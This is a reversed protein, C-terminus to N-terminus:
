QQVNWHNGMYCISYLLPYLSHGPYRHISIIGCWVDADYLYILLDVVPVIQGLQTLTSYFGNFLVSSNIYLLDYLLDM